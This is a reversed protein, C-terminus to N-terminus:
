LGREERLASEIMMDVLQEFSVEPKWGLINRAKTSDGCLSPVENPRLYQEDFKVHDYFNLGLKNFVMEAFEKVSHQEGTAIVFDDPVSHQMIMYIAKAYDGAFGWDRKADLNGLRIEKQLGLKIKVAEYCIKQTVFNRSRRPSEHNHLIGNSAFMGYGTRYVKTIFYAYLKAVGYPSQPQMITNENQPPPSIGWLESSSAQYYKVNSMGLTRLSELIRVAALGTVQGTYEPVDFSVRVHSMSGLNYVVDPKIKMLLRVISNADALDGYYTEIRGSDLLHDIRQTTLTSTRRQLGYVKWDNEVLIEALYSGTQGGIGTVLCTKSM